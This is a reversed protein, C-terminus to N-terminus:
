IRGLSSVESVMDHLPPSLIILVSYYLAPLAHDGLNSGWLAASTNPRSDLSTFSGVYQGYRLKQIKSHLFCQPPLIPWIAASISLYGTGGCAPAM